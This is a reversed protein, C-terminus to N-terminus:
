KGRGKGGRPRGRGKGRGKGKGRGPAAVPAEIPITFPKSKGNIRVRKTAPGSAEVVATAADKRVRDRAKDRAMISDLMTSARSAAVEEPTEVKKLM